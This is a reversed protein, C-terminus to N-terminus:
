SRKLFYPLGKRKENNEKNLDLEERMIGPGQLRRCFM